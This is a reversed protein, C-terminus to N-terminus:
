CHVDVSQWEIVVGVYKLRFLRCAAMVFTVLRGVSQGNNEPSTLFVFFGVFSVMVNKVSTM